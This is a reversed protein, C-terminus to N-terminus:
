SATIFTVEFKDLVDVIMAQRTPTEANPSELLMDAEEVLLVTKKWRSLTKM